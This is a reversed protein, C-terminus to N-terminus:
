ATSLRKVGCSGHTACTQDQPWILDQPGASGGGQGVCQPQAKCAQCWGQSDETSANTWLPGAGDGEAGREGSNPGPM